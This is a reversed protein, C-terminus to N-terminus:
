HCGCEEVIMDMHHSLVVDWNKYYLMSLPSMKVPVCSTCPVREPHFSKLLSQMYAHNTPMFTEDLPSPCEGGCRYANFSKPHIVWGGWGIRDFNVEMDMRRCLSQDRLSTSNGMNLREKRNRKQRKANGLEGARQFKSREVTRLLTSPIGGVEARSRKFFVVMMIQESRRHPPKARSGARALKALKGPLCQEPGQSQRHEGPPFRHVDQIGPEESRVPTGQSLWRNLLGTLDFVQWSSSATPPNGTFSGLPSYSHCTRNGQCKYSHIHNILITTNPCASIPHMRIRLEAFHVFDYEAISTMDFDIIWSDGSYNWGRAPLSVVQDAQLVASREPASIARSVRGTVAKYLELMYAPLSKPDQQAKWALPRSERGAAAAALLLLLLFLLAPRASHREM